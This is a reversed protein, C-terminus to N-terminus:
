GRQRRSRRRGLLFLAAGLPAALLALPLAGPLGTAALAGGPTGPRGPPVGPASAGPTPRSTGSPKTPTPTPTASPRGPTATVTPPNGGPASVPVVEARVTDADNVPNHDPQRAGVTATVPLTTGAPTGLRAAGTVTLAATQGTALTGVPCRARGKDVPCRSGDPATVVPSELGPPLDITVVTDTATIPGKNVVTFDYGVTGGAVVEPRRVTGSVGLDLTPAIPTDVTDRASLRAGGVPDGYGVAATNHATTSRGRALVTARFTLTTLSAPMLTGGATADAGTGLNVRLRGGSLVEGADDGGADTLPGTGGPGAVVELSGPQYALADPLRDDLVVGVAQDGGDNRVTVTYELVDGVEAVQRGSLNVVNKDVTLCPPTGFTIGDLFNGISLGGEATLAHFSFRTRRQGKPVTYTGTHTGWAQNGDSLVGQSATAGGPAGILVEMTDTGERGRHSLRWRLRSGPVTDIDQYLSSPENANLEAFQRGEAAPVGRFGSSWLEIVRDSATTDWGPVKDEDLLDWSADPIVPEEFGGNALRQPKACVTSAPAPAVREARRSPGPPAPPALAAASAAPVLATVVLAVAWGRWPTRTVVRACM